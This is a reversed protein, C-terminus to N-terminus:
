SFYQKDVVTVDPTISTYLFAQYFAWDNLTMSFDLWMLLALKFFTFYSKEIAFLVTFLSLIKNNLKHSLNASRSLTLYHDERHRTVSKWKVGMNVSFFFVTWKDIKEKRNTHCEKRM